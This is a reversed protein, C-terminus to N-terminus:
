KKKMFQNYAMGAGLIIVVVPLWPIEITFVQLENLLWIVGVVVLIIGFIPLEKMKM